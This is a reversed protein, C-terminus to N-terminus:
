TFFDLIFKNLSGLQTNGRKPVSIHNAGHNKASLLLKLLIKNVDNTLCPINGKIRCKSLLPFTERSTIQM